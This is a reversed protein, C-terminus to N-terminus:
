MDRVMVASNLNIYHVLAFLILNSTGPHRAVDIPIVVTFQKHTIKMSYNKRMWMYKISIKTRKTTPCGM